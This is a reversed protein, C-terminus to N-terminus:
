QNGGESLSEGQTLIPGHKAIHEDFAVWIKSMCVLCLISHSTWVKRVKCMTCIKRV